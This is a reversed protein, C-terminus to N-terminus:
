HMQFAPSSLTLALSSESAAIHTHELTNPRRGLIHATVQDTGGYRRTLTRDVQGVDTGRALDAAFNWRWLLTGMWPQPEIPYGDPTPYAFPGHGMRQLYEVVSPPCKSTANTVRLASVVYRLPRKFLAGRSEQFADTHVMARLTAAIDCQSEVFVRAIQGIADENLTQSIFRRHLKAAIHRATSAHLCVIALVADLDHEGGGPQIAHGLVVKSGDDHRKPDFAVHAPKFGIPNHQYTWGSLCRAVEMVDDQTYGGHVGLTHLELLERAYNENPKDGPDVVKNDHGDLYILMAPSIASAHVLDRFNRLAHRRIVDRDDAAKLWRCDDKESVINFHDTWFDVMVEFLQRKSYTARLLKYRTMDLLLQEPHYEYMEGIPEHVSEISATKWNCRADDISEFDLQQELWADIGSTIIRERDGPRPGWTLRNLVHTAEDIASSNPPQLHEPMDEPLLASLSDSTHECGLLGIGATGIGITRVFERRTSHLPNSWVM